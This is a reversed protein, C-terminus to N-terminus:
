NDAETEVWLCHGPGFVCDLSEIKEVATRLRGYPADHLMFVLPVTEGAQAEPQIVSLIGIDLQGFIAAVQALVGPRDKVNFRAYFPSVIENV